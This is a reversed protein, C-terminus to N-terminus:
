AKTATEKDHPRARDHMRMPPAFHQMSISRDHKKRRQVHTRRSRFHRKEKRSRNNQQLIVQQNIPTGRDPLPLFQTGSPTRPAPTEPNFGTPCVM